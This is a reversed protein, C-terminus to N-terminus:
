DQGNSRGLADYYYVTAALFLSRANRSLVDASATEATTADFNDRDVFDWIASNRDDLCMERLKGRIQQLWDLREFGTDKVIAHLPAKRKTRPLRDSIKAKLRRRVQSALERYFNLYPSRSKWGGSDFPIELLHPALEKLLGYHFPQTRRLRSNVAFSAQAVSRSFYPSYSDRLYTTPRMVQGTRRGGREYLYFVDNLDDIDIGQDAYRTISRDTFSRAVAIAEPRIMNNASSIFRMATNNQVDRVTAGRFHHIPNFSSGKLLGGGGGSIRVPLPRTAVKQATTDSLLLQLPCLGDGQRIFKEVQVDWNALLDVSGLILNEHNVQLASAVKGAIEGDVGIRNGYTYYRASIDNRALLAALVRSDRGGTLPCLVNDFNRGISKLPRAMEESLKSIRSRGFDAKSKAVIDAVPVTQQSIPRAEGQRWIWREGAPFARVGDRLTRDGAVWGMALYRSVAVPDLNFGGSVHDLLAVSNSILWYEGDTSYYIPHVGFSDLQLEVQLDNKRIRIGCFFGDVDRSFDDWQMLLESAVHANFRDSVDVPLGDYVVVADDTEAVYQRSGLWEDSPYQCAVMTSGCKSQWSYTQGGSLSSYMTATKKLAPILLARQDNSLRRGLVFLNM